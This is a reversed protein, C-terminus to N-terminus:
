PSKETISAHCLPTLKENTWEFFYQRPIEDEDRLMGLIIVLRSDVRYLLPDDIDVKDSGFSDVLFPLATAEGTRADVMGGYLCTSGCGFTVMVYHGAFNIPLERLGESLRTRYERAFATDRKLAPREAITEPAAAFDEYSPLAAPACPSAPIDAALASSATLFFTLVLKLRRWLSPRSRMQSDM